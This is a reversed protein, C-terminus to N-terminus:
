RVGANGGRRVGRGCEERARWMGGAHRGRGVGIEGEADRGKKCAGRMESRTGGLDQGERVCCTTGCM